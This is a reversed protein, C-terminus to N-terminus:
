RNFVHNIFHPIAFLQNGLVEGITVADESPIMGSEYQLILLVNWGILFLTVGVGILRSRKYSLNDWFAALGWVFILSCNIFMRGGFSSGQWWCWWSSVLYVQLGFALLFSTVLIPLKKYVLILGIISLLLVPHWFFLGRHGSFLVNSIQPKIWNFSSEYGEAGGEELYPIKFFSSYQWQYIFMQPLQMLCTVLGIVVLSTIDPFKIMGKWPFNRSIQNAKIVRNIINWIIMTIPVIAFLINQLRVFTGLGLVLGLLIQQRRQKVWATSICIYLFVSILFQSVAHSMSVELTLYFSLPSAFWIGAVGLVSATQSFFLRAAKYCAILGLIGLTISGLCYFLEYSWTLGNPEIELGLTNAILTALHGLAFFPSLMLGLGLTYKSYQPIAKDVRAVGSFNSKSYSLYEYEDYIQLDGDFILSRLPTYYGIGDGYVGFGILTFNFLFIVLTIVVGVWFLKKVWDKGLNQDTWNIM